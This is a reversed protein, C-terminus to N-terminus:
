RLPNKSPTGARRPYERPTPGEKRVVVLSRSGKGKPLELLLIRDLRAGLVRGAGEADREEEKLLQGKMAIFCGGERLFPVCYEMLVSLPAVARATIWDLSGRLNKEQGLDEARGHLARVNLVALKEAAEKLFRVRKALSDVLLVNCDQHAIALPMGPFGAGSGMDLGMGSVEPVRMLTLSDCLHKLAFDEPETISTLNLVRNQLIVLHSFDLLREVVLSSLPLEMVRLGELLHEEVRQRFDEGM